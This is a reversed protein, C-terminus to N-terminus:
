SNFWPRGWPRPPSGNDFANLPLGRGDEGRAHPHVSAPRAASPAVSTKGVPTPTFRRNRRFAQRHVPRGWPRPPSGNLHADPVNTSSTKGVPTPTFRCQDSLIEVSSADEGRAHPHVPWASGCSSAVPTKGVPTPTFREKAVSIADRVKGDEGRAHPHVARGVVRRPARIRRGWPRPPSGHGIAKGQRNTCTKGVPTPTFRTGAPLELVSKGDEGRAHPHVSPRGSGPRCDRTKGVPTPTFRTSGSSFSCDYRRGWPRPPSGPRGAEGIAGALTKGVPTPTFRKALALLWKAHGDEGRAHPHVPTPTTILGGWDRRGWPRPPSGNSWASCHTAPVDEGRAHPHVRKGRNARVSAVTKGVPTPTFRGNATGLVPCLRRGWPRPPSGVTGSTTSVTSPDEGRAHPHVSGAASAAAGTGTKGM